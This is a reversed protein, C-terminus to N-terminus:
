RESEPADPPNTADDSGDNPVAPPAPPPTAKRRSGRITTSGSTTATPDAGEPVSPTARPRNRLRDLRDRMVRATEPDMGRERMAAQEEPTYGELGNMAAGRVGAGPGGAAPTVWAVAPGTKQEKRLERLGTGDDVVIADAKVEVLRVGNRVAGQALVVQKGDVSLIASRRAGTIISGLYRWGALSGPPAPAPEGTPPEPKKPRNAAWELRFAADSLTEPDPPAIAAPRVPTAPGSAVGPVAPEPLTVTASVVRTEFAWLAGAGVALAAAAGRWVWSLRRARGATLGGTIGNAM